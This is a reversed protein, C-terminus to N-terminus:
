RKQLVGMLVIEFLGLATRGNEFGATDKAESRRMAANDGRAAGPWDRLATLPTTM